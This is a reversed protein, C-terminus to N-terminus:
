AESESEAVASDPLEEHYAIHTRWDDPIPPLPKVDIWEGSDTKVQLIM